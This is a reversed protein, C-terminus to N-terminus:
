DHIICLCNCCVKVDAKSMGIFNENIGATWPSKPNANIEAIIAKNIAPEHHDPTGLVAAVAICCLLLAVAKM